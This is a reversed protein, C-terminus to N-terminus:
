TQAASSPFLATSIPATGSKDCSMAALSYVDQPKQPKGQHRSSIEHSAHHVQQQKSNRQEYREVRLSVFWGPARDILAGYRSQQLVPRGSQYHDEGFLKNKDSDWLSHKTERYAAYDIGDILLEKAENETM